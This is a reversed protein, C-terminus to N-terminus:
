REANLGRVDSGKTTDDQAVLSALLRLVGIRTFFRRDERKDERTLLIKTWTSPGTKTGDGLSEIKKRGWGASFRQAIM